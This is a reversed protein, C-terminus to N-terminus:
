YFYPIFFLQLQWNDSKPSNNHSMCYIMGVSQGKSILKLVGSIRCLSFHQHYNIHNTVLCYWFTVSIIWVNRAVLHDFLAIFICSKKWMLFHRKWRKILLQIMCCTCSYNRLNWCKIASNHIIRVLALLGVVLSHCSLSLKVEYGHLHRSEFGHEWPQVKRWTLIKCSLWYAM